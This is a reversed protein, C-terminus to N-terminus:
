GNFRVRIDIRQSVGLFFSFDQGGTDCCWKGGSSASALWIQPIIVVSWSLLKLRRLFRDRLRGLLRLGRWFFRLLDSVISGKIFSFRDLYGLGEANVNEVM